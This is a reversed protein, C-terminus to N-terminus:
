YKQQWTVVNGSVTFTTFKSTTVYPGSVTFTTYKSTTVYSCSFTRLRNPTKNIIIIAKKLLRTVLFYVIIQMILIVLVGGLSIYRSEKRTSVKISALKMRHGRGM